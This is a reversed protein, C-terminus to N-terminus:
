AEAMTATEHYLMRPSGDESWLSRPTASAETSILDQESGDESLHNPLGHVHSLRRSDTSMHLTESKKFGYLTNLRGWGASASRGRCATDVQHANIRDAVGAASEKPMEMRCAFVGPPQIPRAKIEADSRVTACVEELGPPPRFQHMLLGCSGNSMPQSGNPIKKRHEFLGPPRTPQAKVPGSSSVPARFEELDPPPRFQHTLSSPSENFMAYSKVQGSGRVPARAEELGPPQLLQRMASSPSRCFWAASRLIRTNQRLISSFSPYTAARQWPQPALSSLHPRACVL